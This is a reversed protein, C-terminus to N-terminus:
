VEFIVIVERVEWEAMGGAVMSAKTSSPALVRKGWGM